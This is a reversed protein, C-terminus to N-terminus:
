SRIAGPQTRRFYVFGLLFLGTALLLYTSPEPTVYTLFEQTGPSSVDTVVYWYDRNVDQYNANAQTLWYNSSPDPASAAAAPFLNWITAQIHKWQSPATVAYQGALWAAKMYTELAANGGRTGTLDGSLSRLGATWETGLSIAHLFDVCYIDLTATGPQSLGSLVTAQYPGVYYGFGITSGPDTFRLDVEEQAAVPAAALLAVIVSLKRAIRM